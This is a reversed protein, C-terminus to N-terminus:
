NEACEGADARNDGSPGRKPSERLQLRNGEGQPSLSGDEYPSRQNERIPYSSNREPPTSTNTSPSTLPPPSLRPSPPSTNVMKKDCAADRSRPSSSAAVGGGGKGKPMAKIGGPGASEAAFSM